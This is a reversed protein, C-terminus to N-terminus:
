LVECALSPYAGIHGKSWLSGFLLFISQRSTVPYGSRMGRLKGSWTGMIRVVVAQGLESSCNRMRRVGEEVLVALKMRKRHVSASSFLTTTTTKRWICKSTLPCGYHPATVTRYAASPSPPKHTNPPSHKNM